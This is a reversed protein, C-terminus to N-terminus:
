GRLVKIQKLFKQLEPHKIRNLKGRNDDVRYKFTNKLIRSLEQSKQSWPEEESVNFQKVIKTAKQIDNEDQLLYVKVDTQKTNGETTNYPMCMLSEPPNHIGRDRAEALRKADICCTDFVVPRGHTDKDLKWVVICIYQSNYSEFNTVSQWFRASPEECSGYSTKIEIGLGTDKGNYLLQLDPFKGEHRVWKYGKRQATDNLHDIILYELRNSIYISLRSNLCYIEKKSITEEKEICICDQLINSLCSENELMRIARDLEDQPTVTPKAGSSSHKKIGLFSDLTRM